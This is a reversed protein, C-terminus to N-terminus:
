GGERRLGNLLRELTLKAEALAAGRDEAHAIWLAAQNMSGNLLQTLAERHVDGLLGDASLEALGERLLCGGGEMDLALWREWGLVAPADLLLIRRVAPETAAELWAHCGQILAAWPDPDAAGALTVATALRSQVNNVVAEFLGRKSGFHHYLAGRTLGAERVLAETSTAEYGATAFHKEAVALVRGTTKASREEQTQKGGM